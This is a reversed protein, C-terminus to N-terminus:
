PTIGTVTELAIRWAVFLDAGASVAALVAALHAAIPGGRAALAAVVAESMRPAFIERADGTVDAAAVASLMPGRAAKLVAAMEILVRLACGASVGAAAAADHAANRRAQPTRRGASLHRAYADLVLPALVPRATVPVDPLSFLQDAFSERKGRTWAPRRGDAPRGPGTARVPTWWTADLRKTRHAWQMLASSPWYHGYRDRGAPAPMADGALFDLVASLTRDDTEDDAAVARAEDAHSKLVRLRQETLGLAAAAASLHMPSDDARIRAARQAPTEPKGTIPHPRTGPPAATSTSIAM